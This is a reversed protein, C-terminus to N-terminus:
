AAINSQRSNWKQGEFLQKALEPQPSPPVGVQQTPWPLPNIVEPARKPYATADILAQIPQAAQEREDEEIADIAQEAPIIQVRVIGNMAEAMRLLTPLEWKADTSREFRSIASQKMPKEGDYGTAEALDDQTMGRLERLARVQDPVSTELDARFWERRFEPDRRLREAVDLDISNLQYL